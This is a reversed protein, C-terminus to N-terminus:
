RRVLNNIIVIGKAVSSENGVTYNLFINAKLFLPTENFTQNGAYCPLFFSLTANPEITLPEALALNETPTSEEATCKIGNLVASQDLASTINLPLTGNAFENHASCLFGSPFRCQSPELQRALQWDYEPLGEFVVSETLNQATAQALRRDTGQFPVIFSMIFISGQKREYAELEVKGGLSARPVHCLRREGAAILEGGCREEGIGPDDSILLLYASNADAFGLAYLTANKTQVRGEFLPTGNVSVPASFAYSRNLYDSVNSAAFRPVVFDECTLNSIFTWNLIRIKTVGRKYILLRHWGRESWACVTNSGEETSFITVDRGQVDRRWETMPMHYNAVMTRVADLFESQTLRDASHYAIEETGNEYHAVVLRGEDLRNMMGKYLPGLSPDSSFIGLVQNLGDRTANFAYLRTLGESPFYAFIDSSERPSVTFSIEFANNGEESEEVLNGADAQVTVTYVGPDLPLWKLTVTESGGAPVNVTKQAVASGNVSLMVLSDGSDASGPNSITINFEIIEGAYPARPEYDVSATLDPKGVPGICGMFLAALFTAALAFGRM